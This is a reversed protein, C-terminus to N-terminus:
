PQSKGCVGRSVCVDKINLRLPELAIGLKVCLEDPRGRRLGTLCVRFDGHEGADASLRAALM